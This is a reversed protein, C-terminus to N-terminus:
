QAQISNYVSEFGFLRSIERLGEKIEERTYSNRNLEEDTFSNLRSYFDLALTFYSNKDTEIQEFLLNEAENFKNRNLLDILRRHLTDLRANNPDSSETYPMEKDFLKSFGTILIQIQRLLVDQQHIM